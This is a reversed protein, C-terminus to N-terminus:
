EVTKLLDELRRKLLNAKHDPIAYQWAALRTNVRTVEDQIETEAEEAADAVISIWIANDHEYTMAVIQLGDFTRITTTTGPELAGEPKPRVDDLTLEALAAGIENAVSPYSLERGDPIDVIDYNATEATPKEIVFEEGDAHSIIVQQVREADIDVLADALWDGADGPVDPDQDILVSQEANAIRAYRYVTQATAGLIIGYEFGDGSITLETSESNEDSPDNVGILHYKEPDNTKREIIKADAISVLLDRLKAMDAAYGEREVVVWADDSRRITVTGSANRAGLSTVDNLQSKLEPILTDSAPRNNESRDLVLYAIVLIAALAALANLNKATM